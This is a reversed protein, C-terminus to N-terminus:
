GGEKEPVKETLDGSHDAPIIAAQSKLVSIFDSNRSYRYQANEYASKPAREDCLIDRDEARLKEYRAALADADILRGHDPVAIAKHEGNDWKGRVNFTFSGDKKVAIWLEFDGEGPLSVDPIYIGSM